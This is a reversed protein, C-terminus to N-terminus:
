YLRTVHLIQSVSIYFIDATGKFDWKLQGNWMEAPLELLVEKLEVGVKACIRACLCQLLYCM